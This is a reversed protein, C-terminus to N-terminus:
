GAMSAMREAKREAYRARRRARRREAKHLESVLADADAAVFTMTVNEYRGCRCTAGYLGWGRAKGEAVLTLVVPEGHMTKYSMKCSSLHEATARKDTTPEGKAAIHNALLRIPTTVIETTM